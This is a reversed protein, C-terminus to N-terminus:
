MAGGNCAAIHDLAAVESNEIAIEVARKAADLLKAARQRAEFSRNVADRVERQLKPPAIWVKFEAIDRPYLEIQGSSGRLRQKVQWQGAQSNLFVSLYIPDLGNKPRLITVHNDPIAKKSHLYSASRGITGVGTGNILVDGPQILLDDDRFTAMRNNADLRVEDRLVHKSNVVPLGTSTYDPQRGRQNETLLDGLLASAGTAEILEAMAKFRPHFHQADLRGAAFAESSSRVYSLPEPAQWNELRLARLLTAEASEIAHQSAELATYAKSVTAAVAAEFGKRFRPVPLQDMDELLLGTQVAGRKWRETLSRGIASSLYIALYAPDINKPRLIALKCSCTAERTTRVLSTEGVTGVISLLVDGQQLHSRRMYTQDFAERTIRNPTGQEIFFHGAVDQGRYYPMGEDVFSESISFHNGDSVQAVQAVTECTGGSLEEDVVLYRRRFFEADM